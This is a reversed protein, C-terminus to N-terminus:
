CNNPNCGHLLGVFRYSPANQANYYTLDMCYANGAAANQICNSQCNCGSEPSVVLVAHYEGAQTGEQFYISSRGGEELCGSNQTNVAEGGNVTCATDDYFTAYVDQNRKQLARGSVLTTAIGLTVSIIAVFHM